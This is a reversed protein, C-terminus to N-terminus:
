ERNSKYDDIENEVMEIVNETGQLTLQQIMELLHDMFLRRVESHKRLQSDDFIKYIDSKSKGTMEEVKNFFVSMEDLHYVEM